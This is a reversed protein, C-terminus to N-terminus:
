IGLERCTEKELDVKLVIGIADDPFRWATPLLFGDYEEQKVAWSRYFETDHFVANCIKGDILAQVKANNPPYADTVPIWKNRNTM